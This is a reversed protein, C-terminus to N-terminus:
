EPPVQFLYYFFCDWFYLYDLQFKNKAPTHYKEDNNKLLKDLYKNTEFETFLLDNTSTTFNRNKKYETPSSNHIKKFARVYGRPDTFGYMSAIEYLTYKSDLLTPISKSIRVEDYYDQFNKGFYKDFFYSLYPVTLDFKDSLVKLTINKDYNDNIYKSIERLKIVNKKTPSKTQNSIVRYKNVYSSIIASNKKFSNM